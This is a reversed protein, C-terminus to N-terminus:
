NSVWMKISNNKQHHPKQKKIQKIENKDIRSVLGRVFIDSIFTEEMKM